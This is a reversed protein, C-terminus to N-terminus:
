DDLAERNATVIHFKPDSYYVSKGFAYIRAFTISSFLKAKYLTKTTGEETLYVRQSEDSSVLVSVVVATNNM